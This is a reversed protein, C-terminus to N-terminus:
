KTIASVRVLIVLFPTYLGGFGPERDTCEKGDVHLCASNEQADEEDDVTGLCKGM